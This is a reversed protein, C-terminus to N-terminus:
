VPLEYISTADRLQRKVTEWINQMTPEKDTQVIVLDPCSIYHLADDHASDEYDWKNVYM